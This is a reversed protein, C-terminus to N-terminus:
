YYPNEKLNFFNICSESMLYDGVIEQCQKTQPVPKKKERKIKGSVMTPNKGHM